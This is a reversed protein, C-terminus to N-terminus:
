GYAGTRCACIAQMTKLHAPPLNPYRALYEAGYATFISTITTM